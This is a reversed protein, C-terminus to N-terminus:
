RVDCRAVGGLACSFMFIGSVIVLLWISVRLVGCCHAVRLRVACGRAVPSARLWGRVVVRACAVVRLVACRACGVVEYVCLFGIFLLLVISCRAACLWGCMCCVAVVLLWLVYVGFSCCRVVCLM